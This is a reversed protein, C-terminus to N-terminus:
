APASAAADRERMIRAPRGAKRVLDALHSTLGVEGVMALGAEPPLDALAARLATLGKAAEFTIWTGPQGPVLVAATSDTGGRHLQVVWPIAGDHVWEFRVPGMAAALRRYVEEIDARIPRPLPEPAAEGLMFTDGEGARGEIVLDGGAAVIAAGSYRAPVAAQCLISAIATGDPDETAMLRFPDVWGKRTTYWGPEPEVPATRIWVEQSATPRGFTFPAVRRGFVMTRPVPLGIEEAVLLGFAKDGIHRSFKNPWQLAPKPNEGPTREYEWAVTHGSRWGRLGPHISFELRADRTDGLEPAFGYVTALISVAMARPMSAVGPEEVCRPTDDPAFEVIDGQAVGSVGGDAVDITENAIVHLGEGALRRATAIAEAPDGIGYVFERSRPSDPQYSRLNITGEPSCALLADIAAEPSPFRHNPEHGALRCYAQELGGDPRPEFSVFQAVNGLEALVDLSRDKRVALATTSM